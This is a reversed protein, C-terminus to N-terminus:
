INNHKNCKRMNGSKRENQKPPSIPLAYIKKIAMVDKNQLPKPREDSECQSFKEQCFVRM